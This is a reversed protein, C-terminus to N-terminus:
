GNYLASICHLTASGNQQEEKWGHSSVQETLLDKCAGFLNLRIALSFHQKLFVKM